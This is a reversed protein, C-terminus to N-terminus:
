LPIPQAPRPEPVSVGEEIPLQTMWRQIHTFEHVPRGQDPPYVSCLGPLLVARRTPTRDNSTSDYVAEAVVCPEGSRRVGVDQAEVVWVYHPLRALRLNRVAPLPLGRSVLDRKYSSGERLFTRFSVQKPRAGVAQALDRLPQPADPISAWFSFTKHADNEAAEASLLVKPPLPVMVSLWPARHDSWPSEIVEYPGQQDDTAVLRIEDAEKFWGVIVFAHNKTGVLVPYGSNLYRCIVSFIRTDWMGPPLPEGNADLTPEPNDVTRVRPMRSLGYFLAPQGFAGFVVQLQNLTMGKSPLPREISLITPSAAVLSATAQRGVLQRRTASYHCMWAAAHACRLFETDQQCFPAGRIKLDTGFLNVRDNILALTAGALRPPPALVTRGVRGLPIPRVCAYGIYEESSPLSHFQDESILTRFFHLRRSFSSWSEFKQQSWSASFESRYDTDVYRNEVVVSICGSERAISAVQRFPRSAISPGGYDRILAAWAADDDGLHRVWGPSDPDSWTAGDM